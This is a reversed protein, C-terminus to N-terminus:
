SRKSRARKVPKLPAPITPSAARKTFLKGILYGIGLGALTSTMPNRNVFKSVRHSGTRALDQGTAAWDRSNTMVERAFHRLRDTKSPHFM